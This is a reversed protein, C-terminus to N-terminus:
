QYVAYALEGSPMVIKLYLTTFPPNFPFHFDNLGTQSKALGHIRTGWTGRDM